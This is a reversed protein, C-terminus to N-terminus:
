SLSKRRGARRIPSASQATGSAPGSGQRRSTGFRRATARFRITGDTNRQVQGAQHPLTVWEGPTTRALQQVVRERDKATVLGATRQLVRTAMESDLPRTRSITAVPSSPHVTRAAHDIRDAPSLASRTGMPHLKARLRADRTRRVAPTMWRPDDCEKSLQDLWDDPHSFAGQESDRQRERRRDDARARELAERIRKRRQQAAWTTM